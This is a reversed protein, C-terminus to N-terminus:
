RFLKRRRQANRLRRNEILRNRWKMLNQGTELTKARGFDRELLILFWRFRSARGLKDVTLDRTINHLIARLVQHPVPVKRSQFFKLCKSLQRLTTRNSTHPAIALAMATKGVKQTHRAQILSTRPRQEDSGNHTADTNQRMSPQPRASLMNTVTDGTRWTDKQRKPFISLAKFLHSPRFTKNNTLLQLAEDAMHTNWFNRSAEESEGYRIIIRSALEFDGLGYALGALQVAEDKAVGILGKMVWRIDQQHNIQALFNCLERIHRHQGRTWFAHGLAGYCRPSDGHLKWQKDLQYQTYEIADAWRFRSLWSLFLQCIQKPPLQPKHFGDELIFCSMTLYQLEVKPLRALLLLWCFRAQFFDAENNEALIVLRESATDLIHAHDVSSIHSLCRAMRNVKHMVTKHSVSPRGLAMFMTELHAIIGLGMSATHSEPICTMIQRFLRLGNIELRSTHHLLISWLTTNFSETPTKQTFSQIGDVIASYLQVKLSGVTKVPDLTQFDLTLSAFAQATGQLFTYLSEASCDHNALHHQLSSCFQTFNRRVGLGESSADEALCTLALEIVCQPHDQVNPIEMCLVDTVLGDNPTIAQAAQNTWHRRIGETSQRTNTEPLLWRLMSNWLQRQHRQKDHKNQNAKRRPTPPMWIWQTLDPMNELQWLPSSSQTQDFNLAGMNRRGMRKRSEMPGPVNSGDRVIMKSVLFDNEFTKRSASGARRITDCQPRLCYNVVRYCRSSQALSM